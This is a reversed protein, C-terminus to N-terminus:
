KKESFILRKDNDLSVEVVVEPYGPGVRQVAIEIPGHKLDVRMHAFAAAAAVTPQPVGVTAAGEIGSPLRFIFDTM